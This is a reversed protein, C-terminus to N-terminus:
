NKNGPFLRGWNIELYIHFFFIGDERGENIVSLLYGTETTITM